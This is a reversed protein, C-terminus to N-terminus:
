RAPGPPRVADDRHGRAAGSSGTAVALTSGDPSLAGPALDGIAEFSASEISDILRGSDVDYVRIPRDPNLDTVAVYLRKGDPSLKLIPHEPLEVRFVPRSPDALNWVM